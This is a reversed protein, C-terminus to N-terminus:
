VDLFREIYGLIEVTVDAIVRKRERIKPKVMLCAVIDERLPKKGDYIYSSIVRKVEDDKLGNESCLRNFGREQEVDWFKEFEELVASADDIMLMNEDIFKEILERKSRLSTNSNIINMINEKQSKKDEEDAEVLKGLLKLIYNVNIEDKHILELEFDVDELISVKEKARDSKIADYLDLYKSKYDEFEQEGMELLEFDFDSFGVLINKLRMLARFAQVFKLQEEEDVLDSVSDVTPTIALLKSNYAQNFEKIYDEFPKMLIIEKADKNSFLAIAEDVSAKLNRFCVINGQSKQESLIRNTRSFAQILGHYKLSKDVYLTNVRPADFGTLFMNVVLLIDIERNKVRRSLENYYNYFSKSDKTSYKTGFMANYDTIYEDLKERSYKNPALAESELESFEMAENAQYSFITAVKLRHEKRKFAEYYKILMAVGGVCLMANFEQSHTKRAHNAIIYDVIKDIREDSELLEKSDIEEVEIDIANKSGERQKYRGVYEVSFKLVNDDGIADTIVYKHLVEDFLEKTTRKGLQNNVANQAFIPTGTFGIMQNKEFFRNIAKHTEGFQSRHCEDFIFVVRKERMEEMQSLYQKKSIASNLKQITTVILKTDDCFQKVLAKTDSTGDVSGDSFSNFEKSTQFDLDKRDVVFVVKDVTPLKMLIQSAKFSTLTKGSGTTHWIYGNKDSDRVREIIAEVAYFQYPRLV